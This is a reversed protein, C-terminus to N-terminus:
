KSRKEKNIIFPTSVIIALSQLIISPYIFTRQSALVLVLILIILFGMHKYNIKNCNCSEQPRLAIASAGLDKIISDIEM